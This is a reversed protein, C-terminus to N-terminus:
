ASLLLEPTTSNTSEPKNARFFHLTKVLRTPVFDAIISVEFGNSKRRLFDCIGPLSQINM